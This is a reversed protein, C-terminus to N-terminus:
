VRGLRHITNVQQQGNIPFWFDIAALHRLYPLGTVRNPSLFATFGGWVSFLERGKFAPTLDELMSSFACDWVCLQYCSGNNQM